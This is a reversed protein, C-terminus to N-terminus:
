GGCPRGFSASGGQPILGPVARDRRVTGHRAFGLSMCTALHVAFSTLTPTTM